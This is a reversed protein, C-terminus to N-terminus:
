LHERETTGGTMHEEPGPLSQGQEWLVIERRVKELIQGRTSEPPSRQVYNTGVFRRLTLFDIVRERFQPCLDVGTGAGCRCDHLLQFMLAESPIEFKAATARFSGALDDIKRIIQDDIPPYPDDDNQVRDSFSDKIAISRCFKHVKQPTDLKSTRLKRKLWNAASKADATYLISCGQLIQLRDWYTSVRSKLSPSIILSAYASKQLETYHLLDLLADRIESSGNKRKDRKFEEGSKIEFIHETGDKTLIKADISKQNELPLDTYFAELNRSQFQELVKYVTYRDQYLFGRRTSLITSM